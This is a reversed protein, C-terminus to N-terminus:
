YMLESSCLSKTRVKARETYHRSGQWSSRTGTCYKRQWTSACKGKGLNRSTKEKALGRLLECNVNEIRSLKTLQFIPIEKFIFCIVNSCFHKWSLCCCLLIQYPYRPSKPWSKARPQISLTSDGLTHLLTEAAFGKLQHSQACLNISSQLARLSVLSTLTVM